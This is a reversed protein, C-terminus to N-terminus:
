AAVEGVLVRGVPANDQHTKETKYGIGIFGRVQRGNVYFRDGAMKLKPFQRFVEKGFNVRSLHAYGESHCWALYKQYLDSGAIQHPGEICSDRLFQIAPNCDNKHTELAAESARCHTFQMQNAQLRDLGSIAWNLIGPMENSNLWWGAKDMGPVRREPSIPSDFPIVLMRRWVGSSKDTVHPLVNTAFCLRATPVASIPTQHKRDFTMRGGSTYTKLRGESVKDLSGMDDSFNLLKGVTATLAFRDGFADLGVSSANEPGVLATLVAGVVSKGNAGDGILVLFRQADTNPLLLYGAFEQLLAVKEPDGGLSLDLAARFRPCAAGPDYPFPLCSTTFLNPGHPRLTRTVTDVVGNSVCVCCGPDDSGTLAGGADSAQAMLHMRVAAVHAPKVSPVPPPQKGNAVAASAAKTQHDRAAATLTRCILNDTQVGDLLEYHTGTWRFLGGDRYIIPGADGILKALRAPNDWTEWAHTIKGGRPHNPSPPANTAEDLKRELEADDWPPVANIANWERFLALQKERIHIAFDNVILRAVRYASDHGGNGSVSTVEAIYARCMAVRDDTAPEPTFYGVPRSEQEAKEPADKRPLGLREALDDCRAYFDCADLTVPEGRTGGRWTYADGSPHVSPPVVCQGGTAIVDFGGRYHLVKPGVVAGGAVAAILRAPLQDCGSLRVFRKERNGRVATMTGSTEPFVDNAASVAFPTDLDLAVLTGSANTSLTGCLIGVNDGPRHDTVEVSRATWGPRTPRKQGHQLFVIGIGESRLEEVAALVAQDHTSLTRPHATDRLSPAAAAATM